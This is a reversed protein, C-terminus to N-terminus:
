NNISKMEPSSIHVMVGDQIYKILIAVVNLHNRNIFSVISKKSSNRSVGARHCMEIDKPSIDASIQNLIDEFWEELNQDSVSDPIGTIEINNFRGYQELSSQESELALIKNELVNLDLIVPFVELLPLRFM